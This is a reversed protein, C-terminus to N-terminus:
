GLNPPPFVYSTRPDAPCAGRGRKGRDLPSEAVVGVLVKRGVDKLSDAEVSVDLQLGHPNGVEGRQGEPIGGDPLLQPAEARHPPVLEEGAEGEPRHVEVALPGGRALQLRVSVPTPLFIPISHLAM